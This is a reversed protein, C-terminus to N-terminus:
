GLAIPIDDSVEIFDEWSPRIVVRMDYTLLHKRVHGSFDPLHKPLPAKPSM